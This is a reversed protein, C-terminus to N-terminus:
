GVLRGVNSLSLTVVEVVRAVVLPLLPVLSVAAVVLPLVADLPGSPVLIEVVDGMAV